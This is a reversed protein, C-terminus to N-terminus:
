DEQSDILEIIGLGLTLLRSTKDLQKMVEEMLAKFKKIYKTLSGSTVMQILEKLDGASESTSAAPTEQM